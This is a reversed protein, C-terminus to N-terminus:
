TYQVLYPARLSRRWDGEGSSVWVSQTYECVYAVCVRPHEGVSEKSSVPNIQYKILM